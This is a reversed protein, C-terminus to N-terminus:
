GNKQRVGNHGVVVVVVAPRPQAAARHTTLARMVSRQDFSTKYQLTFKLHM